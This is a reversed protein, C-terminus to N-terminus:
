IAQYAVRTETAFWDSIVYGATVSLVVIAVLVAAAILGSKWDEFYSSAIIPPIDAVGQAPPPTPPRPTPVPTPTSTPTPASTATGNIVTPTATANQARSSHLAALVLCLLLLIKM